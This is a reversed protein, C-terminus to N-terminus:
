VANYQVASYQEKSCNYQVTVGSFQVASSQM